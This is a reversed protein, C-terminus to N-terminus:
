PLRYTTRSRTVSQFTGEASPRLTVRTFEGSGTIGAM